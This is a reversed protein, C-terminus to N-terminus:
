IENLFELLQEVEKTNEEKELANKFLNYGLTDNEQLWSFAKKPGLFWLGKLEFYIELSDKLMWYFRYNGEIDNKSSRLYMKKLWSKLFDKEEESLKKPGKDFVHDIELLFSEATGKDNLLVKGRHVRLFQESNNMQDSNYVWVDLQKGKFLEVDNKDEIDDSFCIIDLDSEETYDGSNYSGYLIITHCNYKHKLYTKVQEFLVDLNM